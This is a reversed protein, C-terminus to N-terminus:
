KQLSNNPLVHWRFILLVFNTEELLSNLKRTKRSKGSKGINRADRSSDHLISGDCACQIARARALQAVLSDIQVQVLHFISTFQPFYFKRSSCLIFFLSFSVQFDNKGLLCGITLKARATSFNKKKQFEVCLNDIRPFDRM